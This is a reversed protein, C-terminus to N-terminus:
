RFTRSIRFGADQTHMMGPQAGGSSCSSRLGLPHQMFGGGRRPRRSKDRVIDDADRYMGEPFSDWSNQCWEAVNGHLDFLGLDNPRLSGAPRLQTPSNAFYWAYKRLLDEAEGPSWTTTSGARCALEWEGETPLRYGSRNQWDAVLMMGEAFKGERNPAYCWEDEPINEQKSLWNCYAVAEYWSVGQVPCDETPAYVKDYHYDKHFQLFEAVTVERAALAFNREVRVKVKFQNDRSESDFQGPPLMVLTQGQRNVYWQRQGEV